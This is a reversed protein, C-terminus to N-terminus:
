VLSRVNFARANLEITEGCQQLKRNNRWMTPAESNNGVNQVENSM